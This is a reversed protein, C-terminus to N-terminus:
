YSPVRGLIHLRLPLEQLLVPFLTNYTQGNDSIGLMYLDYRQFKGGM